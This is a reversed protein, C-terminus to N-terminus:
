LFNVLSNLIFYSANDITINEGVKRNEVMVILVSKDKVVHNPKQCDRVLRSLLKWRNNVYLLEDVPFISVDFNDSLLIIEDPSISLSDFTRKM